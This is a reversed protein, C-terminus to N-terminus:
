YTEGTQEVYLDDKIRHTGDHAFKILSDAIIQEEENFAQVLDLLNKNGLFTFYEELIRRMINPVSTNQLLSTCLKAVFLVCHQWGINEM